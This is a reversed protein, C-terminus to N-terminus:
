VCTPVIGTAAPHAPPLSPQSRGTCARAKACARARASEREVGDGERRGEGEREKELRAKVLADPLPMSQQMHHPMRHQM